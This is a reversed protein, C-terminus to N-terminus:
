GKSPKHARGVKRLSSELSSVFGVKGDTVSHEKKMNPNMSAWVKLDDAKRM